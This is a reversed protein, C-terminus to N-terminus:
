RTLTFLFRQEVLQRVRRGGAEAPVFRLADVVDRIAREFLPHASELVILSGAEVRGLTDVVFTTRVAGEIQDRRLQAPYRPEPSGARMRAARDVLRDTLPDGGGPRGPGYPAGEVGTPTTARGPYSLFEEGVVVPRPDPLENPVHLVVPFTPRRDSRSEGTRSPPVTATTQPPASPARFIIRDLTEIPPAPTDASVTAHFAFGIVLAHAILSTIGAAGARNRKPRSEILTTLM